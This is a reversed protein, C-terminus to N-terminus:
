LGPKRTDEHPHDALHLREHEAHSFAEVLLAILHADSLRYVMSTGRRESNVLKTARLVALHRSVTSQPLGLVKVLEAVNREGGTLLLVLQLRIPEYLAKFVESVRVLDEQLPAFPVTHRKV